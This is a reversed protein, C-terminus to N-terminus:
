GLHIVSLEVMKARYFGVRLEHIQYLLRPAHFPMVQVALGHLTDTTMGRKGLEELLCVKNSLCPVRLM